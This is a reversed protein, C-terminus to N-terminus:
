DAHTLESDAAVAHCDAGSKINQKIANLSAKLTAVAEPTFGALMEDTIALALPALDEVARRGAETTFLLNARRDSPHPRREVLGQADLRDILRTLTIPQIELLEALEAQTRGEQVYLKGLLAWQARTTGCERARHDVFSRIQRATDVLLLFVERRPDAYLSQLQAKSMRVIYAHKNYPFPVKLM